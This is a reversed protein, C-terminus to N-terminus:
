GWGFKNRWFFYAFFQTLIIIVLYTNSTYINNLSFSPNFLQFFVISLSESIGITLYCVLFLIFKNILSDKFLFSIYIYLTIFSLIKGIQNIGNYNGLYTCMIALLFLLFFLYCLTMLNLFPMKSPFVFFTSRKKQPFNSNKQQCVPQFTHGIIM